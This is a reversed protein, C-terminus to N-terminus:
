KSLKKLIEPLKSLAENQKLKRCNDCFNLSWKWFINPYRENYEKFMEPKEYDILCKECKLQIMKM